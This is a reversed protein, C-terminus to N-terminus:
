MSFIDDDNDAGGANAAADADDDAAADVADVVAIADADPVADNYSSGDDM